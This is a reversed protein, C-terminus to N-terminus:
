NSKARWAWVNKLKQIQEAKERTLVKRRMSSRKLVFVIGLCLGSLASIQVILTRNPKSRYEPPTAVDVQQVLAGEKAEDVRALEYHKILIELIAEQVKVDRYANVAEKQVPSAYSHGSGREFKNLQTRLAGMESVIRQVDSNQETTFRGMAQLQIEKVAIQSRMEASAKVGTEALVATLQMGSKERAERFAMEATLLTQQVKKIQLEFFMRRQQADTVALRDLVKRFEEVYQNALKAAFESDMDQAEITILSARKDSTFFVNSKLHQRTGHMSKNEYREQLNLSKIVGNQVSESRMFALYTEDPSKGMLGGVGIAGGLGALSGMSALAASMGGAAQAQPPIIITKATYVPTMLLSIVIGVLTFSGAIQLITKKEQGLTIAWELFDIGDEQIEEELNNPTTNAM